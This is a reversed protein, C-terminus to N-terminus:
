FIEYFFNQIDFLYPEIIIDLCKIELIREFQKLNEGYSKIIDYMDKSKIYIKM